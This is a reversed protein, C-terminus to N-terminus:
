VLIMRRKYDEADDKLLRVEELLKSCTIQMSGCISSQEVCRQAPIPVFRSSPMGKSRRLTM